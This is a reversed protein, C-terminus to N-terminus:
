ISRELRETISRVASVGRQDALKGQMDEIIREATEARLRMADLDAQLRSLKEKVILPILPEVVSMLQDLLPDQSALGPVHQQLRQKSMANYISADTINLERALDQVTVEKRRVRNMNARGEAGKWYDRVLRRPKTKTVM